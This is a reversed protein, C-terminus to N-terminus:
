CRSGVEHSHLLIYPSVEAWGGCASSEVWGWGMVRVITSITPLQPHMPRPFHAHCPSNLPSIPSQTARHKHLSIPNVNSLTLPPCPPHTMSGKCLYGSGGSGVGSQCIPNWLPKRAAVLGKKGNPSLPPLLPANTMVVLEQASGGGLCATKFATTVDTCCPSIVRLNPASTPACM